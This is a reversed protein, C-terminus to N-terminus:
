GEEKDGEPYIFTHAEYTINKNYLDNLSNIFSKCEMFASEDLFPYKVSRIQSLGQDHEVVFKISEILGNILTMDNIKIGMTMEVLDKDDISLLHYPLKMDIHYGDVLKLDTLVKMKDLAIGTTYIIIKKDIAAKIKTLDSVLADLPALMFEGGSFLLYEFLNKQKDINDILEDITYYQEHKKEVLEEYNFCKFCHFMCGTLGHILLSPHNEIESLTLILKNYYKIM